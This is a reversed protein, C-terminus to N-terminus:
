WHTPVLFLGTRSRDYPRTSGPWIILNFTGSPVLVYGRVIDGHIVDTSRQVRRLTVCENCSPRRAQMQGELLSSESSSVARSKPYFRITKQSPRDWEKIVISNYYSVQLPVPAHSRQPDRRVSDTLLRDRAFALAAQIQVHLCACELRARARRRDRYHGV